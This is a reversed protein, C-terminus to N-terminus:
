EVAIWEAPGGEVKTGPQRAMALQSPSAFCSGLQNGVVVELKNAGSAGWLGASLDLSSFHL